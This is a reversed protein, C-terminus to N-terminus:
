TITGGGPGLKGHKAILEPKYEFTDVSSMAGEQFLFIIRKAKAPLPAKRPALPNASVEEAFANRAVSGLIGAFALSGFGAGAKRLLDRRTIQFKTNKSMVRM